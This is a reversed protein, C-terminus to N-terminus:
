SLVVENHEIRAGGRSLLASYGPEQEVEGLKFRDRGTAKLKRYLERAMETADEVSGKTPVGSSAAMKDMNSRFVPNNRLTSRWGSRTKRVGTAQWYDVFDKRASGYDVAGWKEAVFEAVWDTDPYWEAATMLPQKQLTKQLKTPEIDLKGSLISRLLDITDKQSEIVDLCNKIQEEIAERAHPTM